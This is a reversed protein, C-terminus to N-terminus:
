GIFNFVGILAAVTLSRQHVRPRHYAMTAGASTGAADLSTEVPGSSVFKSGAPM